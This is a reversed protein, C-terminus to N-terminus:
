RRAPAAPPPPAPPNPATIDPGAGLNAASHRMCEATMADLAYRDSLGRTTVNPMYGGSFPTDRNDAQLRASRNQTTYVEEARQRCYSATAQDARGGGGGVAGVPAPPPGQCGALVVLLSFGTLRLSM